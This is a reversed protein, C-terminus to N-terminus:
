FQFYLFESEGQVYMIAFVAFISIIFVSILNLNWRIRILSRTFIKEKTQHHSEFYEYINPMGFVVFICLSILYILNEPHNTLLGNKLASGFQLIELNAIFTPIMSELSIPVIIGNLGFMSELYTLASGINETRFFVWSLLVCLYTLLVAHFQSIAKMAISNMSLSPHKIKSWLQFIILYLGQLLGYIVFNWSAGHWLGALGWAYIMPLCVAVLFTKTAGHKNMISLRTLKLSAPYYLYNKIFDSLTIHWRRWFKAINVSRLPSLFNIPLIIGFIRALGVAMDSYGSFDFYLQFTYAIMGLWSELFTLQVGVENANMVLIVYQSLSDAIVVKKFLGIFFISLGVAFNDLKLRGFNVSLIQPMIDKHNVIPGAILQPFFTVFLSYEIFGYDQTLGKYSDLLYIIQQFTFFSIALPLIIHTFNYSFDFLLGANEIFFNFYKFYALLVLNFTVSLILFAKSRSRNLLRGFFFNIAVSSILLIVYPPNWWSYFFLSAAVLWCISIKKSAFIKDLLVFGLITLPLFAFLFSYSNFLM